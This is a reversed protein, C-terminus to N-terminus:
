ATVINFAKIKSVGAMEGAPGRRAGTGASL